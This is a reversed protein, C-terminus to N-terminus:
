ITGSAIGDMDFDPYVVIRLGLDHIEKLRVCLTDIDRLPQYVPNNIERLLEQTYGRNEFIKQILKNM